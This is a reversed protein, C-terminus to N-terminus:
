SRTRLWGSLSLRTRQAPLVAHERGASLFSVLRGGLPLVDRHDGAADFCRLEGGDAASWQANLYLVLSIRRAGGGAPQDVHRDYRAGPAYRAYHLEVDFVGLLAEANCACRLEEFRALIDREAAELPATLWCTADGRLDARLQAGGQPGIRAARFEGREFRREACTALARTASVDLYHDHVVVDGRCLRAALAQALTGATSGSM